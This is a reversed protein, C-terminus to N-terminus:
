NYQYVEGCVPCSQADYALFEALCFDCICMDGCPIFCSVPISEYCICCEIHERVVQISTYQKRCIPCTQQPNALVYQASCEECTSLHECPVFCRTPRLRQCVCCVPANEEPNREPIPLDLVNVAPAKQNRDAILLDLVNVAPAKQNREAILLDLVNVAPASRHIREYFRPTYSRSVELTSSKRTQSKKLIRLTFRM